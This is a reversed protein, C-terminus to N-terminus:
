LSMVVSRPIGGYDKRVERMRMGCMTEFIEVVQQDQHQGVEMILVADANTEAFRLRKEQFSLALLRYSEMGDSDGGVLALHPEYDKVDPMLHLYDNSPIYPPNAFIYDYATSSHWQSHQLDEVLFTTREMLQHRQANRTAVDIAGPSIDIGVGIAQELEILAAVLLPGAGTYLDLVMPPPPPPPPPLTTANVAKLKSFHLFSEMLTETDPRPILTDCNVYLPLSWFEQEGTLYSIPEANSRRHILQMLAIYDSESMVATELETATPILPLLFSPSSSTSNAASSFVTSSSNILIRIETRIESLSLSVKTSSMLIREAQQFIHQLSKSAM